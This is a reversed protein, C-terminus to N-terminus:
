CLEVAKDDFKTSLLFNAKCKEMLLTDSIPMGRVRILLFQYITIGILSVILISLVVSLWYPIGAKNIFSWTNFGTIVHLAGHAFNPL